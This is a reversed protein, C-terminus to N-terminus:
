KFRIESDDLAVEPRHRGELLVPHRERACKVLKEVTACGLATDDKQPYPTDNGLTVLTPHREGLSSM